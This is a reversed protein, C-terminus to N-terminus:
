ADVDESAMAWWKQGPGIAGGQKLAATNPSDTPLPEDPLVGLEKMARLKEVGQLNHVAKKEVKEADTVTGIDPISILVDNGIMGEKKLAALCAPM